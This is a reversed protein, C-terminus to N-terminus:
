MSQSAKVQHEALAYKGVGHKKMSADLADVIRPLKDALSRVIDPTPDGPLEEYIHYSVAIAAVEEVKEKDISQDHPPTHWSTKEELANNFDATLNKFARKLEERADAECRSNDVGATAGLLYAKVLKDLSWQISTLSHNLFITNSLHAESIVSSVFDQIKEHTMLHGITEVNKGIFSVFFENRLTNESFALHRREEELVDAPLLLLLGLNTYGSAKGYDTEGDEIEAFLHKLTIPEHNATAVNPEDMNQTDTLDVDKLDQVIADIIAAMDKKAGPKGHATVPTAISPAPPPTSHDSM